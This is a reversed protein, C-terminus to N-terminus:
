TTEDNVKRMFHDETRKELTNNGFRDIHNIRGPTVTILRRLCTNFEKKWTGDTQLFDELAHISCIDDNNCTRCPSETVSSYIKEWDLPQSLDGVPPTYKYHSLYFKGDPFLNLVPTFDGAKHLYYPNDIFNNITFDESMLPILKNCFELCDNYFKYPNKYIKQTDIDFNLFLSKYGLDKIKVILDYRENLDMDETIVISALEIYKSMDKYKIIEYNQSIQFTINEYKHCLDLMHDIDKIYGNTYIRCSTKDYLELQRKAIEEILDPYLTPEGGMIAMVLSYENYNKYFYDITDDILEKTFTGYKPIGSRQWCYECHLNCKDTLMYCLIFMKDRPNWQNLKSCKKPNPQFCKECKKDFCNMEPIQPLIKFM